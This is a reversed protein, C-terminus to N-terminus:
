NLRCDNSLSVTQWEGKGAAVQMEGVAKLCKKITVAAAAAEEPSSAKIAYAPSSSLSTVLLGGLGVTGLRKLADMRSAQGRRAVAASDASQEKAMSMLRSQTRVSSSSTARIAPHHLFANGGYSILFLVLAGYLGMSSLKM